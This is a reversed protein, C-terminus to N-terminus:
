EEYHHERINVGWDSFRLICRECICADNQEVEPVPVHTRQTWEHEDDSDMDLFFVVRVKRFPVLEAEGSESRWPPVSGVFRLCSVCHDM